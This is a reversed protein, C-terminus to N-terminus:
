GLVIVCYEEGCLENRKILNCPFDYYSRLKRKCLLRTEALSLSRQQNLKIPKARYLACGDTLSHKSRWKFGNTM